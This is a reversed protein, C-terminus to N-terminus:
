GQHLAPTQHRLHLATPQLNSPQRLPQIKGSARESAQLPQESQFSSSSRRQRAAYGHQIILITSNLPKATRFPNPVGVAAAAPDSGNGRLCEQFYRSEPAFFFLLHPVVFQVSQNDKNNFQSSQQSAQPKGGGSM